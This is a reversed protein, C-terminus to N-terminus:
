TESLKELFNNIDKKSKMKIVKNELNLESILKPYERQVNSYIHPVVRVIGDKGFATRFTERQGGPKTKRTIIRYISRLLVRRYITILPAGVWLILDAKPWLLDAINYFIGDCVWSEKKSLSVVRKRFTTDSVRELEKDFLLKDLEIHKLGLKNSLRRALTSKGSGTAGIVM